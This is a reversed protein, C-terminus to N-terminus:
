LSSNPTSVSVSQRISMSATQWLESRTLQGDVLEDVGERMRALWPM